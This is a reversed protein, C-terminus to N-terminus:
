MCQLAGLPDIVSWHSQLFSSWITYTSMRYLTAM